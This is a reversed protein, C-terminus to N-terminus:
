IEDAVPHDLLLTGKDADVGIASVGTLAIYQKGGGVMMVIPSGYGAQDSGGGQWITQGTTKDLAAMAAGPGGPLVIVKNGDIVPSWAYDWTPKKGHFDALIDRTWVIKGTKEDLCNLAGFRGLAYVKHSDIVPTAQSYGHNAPESDDYAYTWVDKGTKIDIARVVDQKGQHDIIFVKGDAVSPGAYGEDGMPTEWLMKPPNQNWNKNIMKEPSIGDASPGRWKTWDAACAAVSLLLVSVLVIFVLARSM